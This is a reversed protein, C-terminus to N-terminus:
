GTLSRLQKPTLFWQLVGPVKPPLSSVSIAATGGKKFPLPTLATSGTLLYSALEGLSPQHGVLAIETAQRPLKSIVEEPGHGNELPEFTVIKARPAACARLIDATQRARLLPSTLIVEPEAGITRLGAGIEKMRRRGEATLAREADSIEATADEAIGHRVLFLLHSM